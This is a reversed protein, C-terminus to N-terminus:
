RKENILFAVEKHILNKYVKFFYNISIYYETFYRWKLTNQCIHVSDSGGSNHCLINSNGGFTGEHRKSTM